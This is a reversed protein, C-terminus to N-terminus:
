GPRITARKTSGTFEHEDRLREFVQLGVLQTRIADEIESVAREAKIARTEAAKIHKEANALQFEATTMRSRTRTLEREAYELRERVKCLEEQTRDREAEATQTRNKADHLNKFGSEALAKARAECEAARDKLFEIMAAAESMFDFAESANRSSVDLTPDPFNLINQTSEKSAVDRLHDRLHQKAWSM